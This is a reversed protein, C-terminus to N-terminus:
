GRKVKKRKRLKKKKRIWIDGKLDVINNLIGIDIILMPIYRNKM